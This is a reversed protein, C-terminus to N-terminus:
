APPMASPMPGVYRAEPRILRGSRRQEAIHALWGAVRGAAFMASFLERQVGVADLLVATALEVNAKLSRDPNKASLLAEAAAEVAKALALRPDKCFHFRIDQESVLMRRVTEGVILQDDVLLVTIPHGVLPAAPSAPEM